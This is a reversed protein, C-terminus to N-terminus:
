GGAANEIEAFVLDGLGELQKESVFADEMFYVARLNPKVNGAFETDEDQALGRVGMVASRQRGGDKDNSRGETAVSRIASALGTPEGGAKRKVKLVSVYGKSGASTKVQWYMGKREVTEVAEGKKLSGIVSSKKSSESFIKVGNKKAQVQASFAVQACLWLAGAM